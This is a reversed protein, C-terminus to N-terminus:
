MPLFNKVSVREREKKAVVQKTAQAPVSPPGQATVSSMSFVNSLLVCGGAKDVLGQREGWKLKERDMCFM